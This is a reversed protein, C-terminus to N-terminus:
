ANDPTGKMTSPTRKGAMPPRAIASSGSKATNTPTGQMSIGTSASPEEAKGRPTPIADPDPTGTLHVGTPASPTRLKKGSLSPKHATRAM